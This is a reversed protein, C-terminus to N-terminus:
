GARGVRDPRLREPVRGPVVQDEEGDVHQHLVRDADRERTQQAQRPELELAEIARHDEQRGHQRDHDDAEGPVQDQRRQPADGLARQLRDAEARQNAGQSPRGEVASTVSASIETQCNTPM